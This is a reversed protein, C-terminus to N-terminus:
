CEVGRPQRAPLTVVFTAGSGPTSRATISGGHREVIKRCVALGVGTGEYEKRGHLRQFVVFIRDLYKEDFGIGNDEFNIRCLGGGPYPETGRGELVAASIRVVPQREPHRYKLSNGILNQFLQRMQLPDAEVVPLRGVEVRAGSREVQLELDSLVERAVASLDVSSKPRAKIEIRAFALLDNILTQMRAAASQMRALYDLGEEGLSGGCRTKLRDGFAQIKRLPEQLDHSAVSAFDQLERNSSELRAAFLALREDARKRETVDRYNNVVAGVGPEELLNTFTGEFWRWSGDKHRVRAQVDARARPRASITNLFGAVLERDDPHIFEFANRGEMEEPAYGLVRPTSPSAYTISGDPGFLAIADSSNEILARFHQESARLKRVADDSSDVAPSPPPHEEFVRGAANNDARM